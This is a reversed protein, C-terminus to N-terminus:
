RRQHGHWQRANHRGNSALLPILAYIDVTLVGDAAPQGNLKWFEQIRAATTPFDPSWNADRLYYNGLRLYRSYPAPMQISAPAPVDYTESARCSEVTLQAQDVRLSCVLGIFGGTARLEFPNQLALLYRRPQELGFLWPLRPQLQYVPALANIARPLQTGLTALQERYPALQQSRDIYPALRQTHPTRGTATAGPHKHSGRTTDCPTTRTHCHPKHRGRQEPGAGRHQM